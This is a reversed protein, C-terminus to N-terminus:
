NAKAISEGFRWLLAIAAAAAALGGGLLWRFLLIAQEIRDVRTALGPEAATGIVAVDLKAIAIEHAQFRADMREVLRTVESLREATRDLQEAVRERSESAREERSQLHELIRDLERSPQDNQMASALTSAAALM